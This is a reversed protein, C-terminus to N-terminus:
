EFVGDGALVGAADALLVGTEDCDLLEVCRESVRHLFDIVDFDEVM